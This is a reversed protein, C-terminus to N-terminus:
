SINVTLKPLYYTQLFTKLNKDNKKKDLVNEIELNIEHGAEHGIARMDAEPAKWNDQGIELGIM